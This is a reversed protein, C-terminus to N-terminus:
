GHGPLSQDGAPAARPMLGVNRWDSVAECDDKQPRETQMAVDAFSEGTVDWRRGLIAQQRWPGPDRTAEARMWGTKGATSRAARGPVLGCGDYGARAQVASTDAAQDGSAFCGM